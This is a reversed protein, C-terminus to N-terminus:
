MSLTMDNNNIRILERNSPCLLIKFEKVHVLLIQMFLCKQNTKFYNMRFIYYGQLLLLM